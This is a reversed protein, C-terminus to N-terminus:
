SKRNMLVIEKCFELLPSFIKEATKRFEEDIPDTKGFCLKYYPDQSEGSVFDSGIWKNRADRLVRERSKKKIMIGQAYKFSSEPFFHLPKILGKWYYNLLHRLISRSNNVPGFEWASDKCILISNVPYKKVNFSCLILHYIWTKLLYKAKTNAYCIQFLGKEYIEALRGFLNFGEIEFDIELTDLHKGKTYNEIKDVFTEAEIRLEDFIIDGINGHPLQGKARQIVISDKLDTGALRKELLDQGILYKELNDLSFNEREDSVLGGEELYIGLRRQLIFKTPNRFFDCLDNMDFSKWKESEESSMSLGTSIFSPPDKHDFISAGALLNEESYSFLKGNGKFYAPSFAQLRHYTVIQEESLGFGMKIYDLLESVLVSPPITTNDQINQGVYSIYLKNGASILTELFLFKDDNRRSRDGPKPHQAVLDFGVSRYDRPFADSNMGILCIVKFPISRMPLMTCFTLGGSIFGSGFYEKKLQREIYSRIVEFDIEQDFGSLKKLRILDELIRRIIQIERESDEDPLFIQEHIANLITSWIDIKRPKNLEKIYSFVNELFELLKGLIKVDSGEINDYPLIESFMNKDRGPMAYGLLLREIGAKWTNESFGPVGFKVRNEADLGWRINTDSIWRETIEIDSETLGFKEKIGPSGLLAMVQAAGFRSDKLDLLSLFGNIVRNEKGVNQDAISFPIHLTDDTQTDFVAHIFPAYLEIDPTMVVIDKPLLDPDEEFMALLNDHLIEIERMPSHCSHIQISTDNSHRIISTRGFANKQVRDQLNLIDTQICSLIDDCTKDEFQEHMECDFGSIFSFFDRGHTGMSSLLRNGKELHLDDAINGTQIYKRKIREIERDSVIDAWYEKCPNMLFLNVQIIRSMELYVMLHFPPLHSIGFISVRQPLNNIKDTPSEINEFLAKRLKARHMEGNSQVLERWLQAQWHDERGEEWKFIMEPRFVLYQDFIDSIKESLQFLKLNKLDDKLYTKLNNFGSREICTPLLKMISFTMAEPAFPSEEPVDPILRRSIEQLFSNPFPFYCNACIGNHKALEMSVWREMGRSQVVITESFLPLPAPKKVIKALQEALIELHNSTFIKLGPM